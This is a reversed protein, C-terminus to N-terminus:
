VSPGSVKQNCIKCYYEVVRLGVYKIPIHKCNLNEQSSHNQRSLIILEDNIEDLPYWYKNDFNDWKVQVQPDPRNIDIGSINGLAGTEQAEIRDGVQFRM